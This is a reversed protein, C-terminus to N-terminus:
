LVCVCLFILALLKPWPSLSCSITLLVIRDSMKYPWSDMATLLPVEVSSYIYQLGENLKSVLKENLLWAVHADESAYVTAEDVPVEDFTITEGKSVESFPIMMHSFHRKALEDLGHRRAHASLVYDLLMTDGQIGQLDIGHTRCVKLDFKLNQGVKKVSPDELIPVLVEFVVDRTLQEGELHGFPVYVADKESWCFSMGVLEGSLSDLSTTETDLAFAGAARLATGLSRLEAETTISRYISKDVKPKEGLLRKAVRGFDWQEFLTKLSETQLGRPALDSLECDMPVDLRITALWKSLRADQAFAVLNQGRKGKIGPAADLVADMDGYENILKAATKIGIGPVGPINDSSDGALGLIDVVREAPVGFKAPVEDPGMELDKMLDLIRINGDVLQCFDKDGTVLMVELEPSAFRKALTGLVDDAEFGPVSLCSFGFARILDPFLPWQRRLDEPMDPRHGKYAPYEEHRFTKGVDFSVVVYDPKWVRNLRDMMTTFGYLARTPFGDSAHMPPLAFHVRFAHNSGDILFMRALEVEM